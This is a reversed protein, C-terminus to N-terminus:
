QGFHEKWKEMLEAWIILNEEILETSAGRELEISMDLFPDMEEDVWAQGYRRGRNWENIRAYSTGDALNFVTSFQISACLNARTNNPYCLVEFEVGEASSTIKPDGEDDVGLTAQYGKDRLIRAVTEMPVGGRLPKAFAPGAAFALAAATFALAVRKM